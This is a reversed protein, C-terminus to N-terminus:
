IIDMTSSITHLNTTFGGFILIDDLRSAVYDLTNISIHRVFNQYTIYRDATNMNDYTPNIIRVENLNIIKM